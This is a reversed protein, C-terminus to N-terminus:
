EDEEEVIRYEAGDAGKSLERLRRQLKVRAVCGMRIIEVLLEAARDDPANEAKMAAAILKGYDATIAPADRMLAEIEDLSYAKAWCDRAVEISLEDM